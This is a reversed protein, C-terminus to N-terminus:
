SDRGQISLHSPSVGQRMYALSCFGQDTRSEMDGCVNGNEGGAEQTGHEGHRPHDVGHCLVPEKEPTKGPDMDACAGGDYGSYNRPSKCTFM